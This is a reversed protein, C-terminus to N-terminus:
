ASKSARSQYQVGVLPGYKEVSRLMEAALWNLQMETVKRRRYEACWALYFAAATLSLVFVVIM